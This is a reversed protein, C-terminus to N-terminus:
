TYKPPGYNERPIKHHDSEQENDPHNGIEQQDEVLHPSSWKKPDYRELDFVLDKKNGAAFCSGVMVLALALVLVRMRAITKTGKEGLYLAFLEISYIFVFRFQKYLPAQQCRNLKHSRAHDGSFPAKGYNEMPTYKPPGYNERPIKHHDSEQENAPHNGIEQQDEVLHPSSWKKPDYRELDFVLDKKNGAAFCSGVMVLALALVLVRMRAITKTGKEGSGNSGVGGGNNFDQRPICHHNNVSSGPYSYGNNADKDEVIHRQEQVHMEVTLAKRNTDAVYPPSFCYRSGENNCDESGDAEAWIYWVLFSQFKQHLPNSLFLM